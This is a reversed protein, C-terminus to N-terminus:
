DEVEPVPTISQASIIESVYNIAIGYCKEGIRFTMFKGKQTDEGSDDLEGLEDVENLVDMLEEAM